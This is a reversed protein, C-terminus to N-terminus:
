HCTLDPNKSQKLISHQKPNPLSPKEELARLKGNPEKWWDSLILAILISYFSHL